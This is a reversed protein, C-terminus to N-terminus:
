DINTNNGLNQAWEAVGADFQIVNNEPNLHFSITYNSNEQFETAIPKTATIAFIDALTTVYTYKEAHENKNEDISTITYVLTVKQNAAIDQPMVLSEIFYTDETDLKVGPKETAFVYSVLPSTATSDNVTWSGTDFSGQSYLSDIRVDSVEVRYGAVSDTDAPEATEVDLKVNLKSLTHHFILDVTSERQRTAGNVSQADSIMIDIDKGAGVGTFGVKQEKKSPNAQLNQGLITYPATSLFRYGTVATEDGAKGYVYRIPAAAPAYAIFRYDAQTDWFRAPAYTWQGTLQTGAEEFTCTVGDYKSTETIATANDGFVYSVEGDVQSKKTGYVAFTQHYDELFFDAEAPKTDGRTLKTTVPCFSIPVQAVKDETIVDSSCSSWLLLTLVAMLLIKAKQGNNMM